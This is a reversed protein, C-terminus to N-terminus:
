WIYMMSYLFYLSGQFLHHENKYSLADFYNCSNNCVCAWSHKLHCVIIKRINCIPYHVNLINMSEQALVSCLSISNMINLPVELKNNPTIIGNFQIKIPKSLLKTM